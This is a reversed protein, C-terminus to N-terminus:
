RASDGDADIGMEIVLNRYVKPETAESVRDAEAKGALSIFFEKWAPYRREVERIRLGYGCGSTDAGMDLKMIINQEALRVAEHARELMRKYRLEMERMALVSQIDRDLIVLKPTASSESMRGGKAKSPSWRRRETFADAPCSGTNFFHGGGIVRVPDGYEPTVRLAFRCFCALPGM